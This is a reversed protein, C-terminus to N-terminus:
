SSDPFEKPIGLDDLLREITEEHEPRFIGNLRDRAKTVQDITPRALMEMGNIYLRFKGERRNITYAPM